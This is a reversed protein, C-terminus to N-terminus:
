GDRHAKKARHLTVAYRSRSAPYLEINAEVLKDDKDDATRCARRALIAPSGPAVELAVALEPPILAASIDQNLQTVKQGFLLWSPASVAGRRL